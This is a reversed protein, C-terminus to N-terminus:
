SNLLENDIRLRRASVESKAKEIDITLWEGNKYLIEGDVMTLIIDSGQGSYILNNVM